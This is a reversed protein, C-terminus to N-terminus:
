PTAPTTQANKQQMERLERVLKDVASASVPDLAATPEDLFLREPDLALVRALFARKLIGDGLQAPLQAGVEVSLGAM